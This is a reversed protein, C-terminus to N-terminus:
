CCVHSLYPCACAPPETELVAFFLLLLGFGILTAGFGAQRKTQCRLRLDSSLEPQKLYEHPPPTGRSNLCPVRHCSSLLTTLPWVQFSLSTLVLSGPSAAPSSAEVRDGPSDEGGGPLLTGPKESVAQSRCGLTM